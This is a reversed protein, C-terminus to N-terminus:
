LLETTKNLLTGQGNLVNHQKCWADRAELALELTAFTGLYHKGYDNYTNVAYNGSPAQKIYRPLGVSSRQPRRNKNNEQHSCAYINIRRNDLRNGNRHEVVMNPQAELILRHMKLTSPGATYPNHAVAYGDKDLRWTYDTMNDLDEEDVLIGLDKIRQLREDRTLTKPM